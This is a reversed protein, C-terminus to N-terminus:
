CQYLDIIENAHEEMTKLPAAACIAANQQLLIEPDSFFDKLKMALGDKGHFVMKKDVLIKAGVTDSCLVPTGCSLAEAVVFGFTEFCISPVILLDYSTLIKKLEEQSYLGRCWVNEQKIHNENGWIDLQWEAFGDQYLGSLVDLLMPLGKYSAASGSFMIRIKEPVTQKKVREDRIGAHSLPVVRTTIGSVLRNYVGATVDSNCHIIDCMKLLNCYYEKVAKYNKVSFNGSPVNKQRKLLKVAPRLIKKIKLLCPNNRLALEGASPANCNCRSCKEDSAECCLQGDFDIFNVKPCLGFYDHTTFVIKVNRKKLEILLEKPFGMWTHIHFVDPHVEDCFATVNENSLEPHNTIMDPDAIGELLPVPAGGFLAFCGIRKHNKIRKIEPHGPNFFCGQPCLTFVDHGAATQALALDAAYRNLGGARNFGLFYHLIRM